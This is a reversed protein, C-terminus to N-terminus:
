PLLKECAFPYKEDCKTAKWRSNKDRQLVVCNKNHDNTPEGSEFYAYGTISKSTTNVFTLEQAIDDLGIWIKDESSEATVRFIFENEEINKPVALIAGADQCTQKADKFEQKASQFEYVKRFDPSRAVSDDWIVKFGTDDVMGLSSNLKKYTRCRNDSHFCVGGCNGLTLCMIACHKLSRATTTTLPDLVPCYDMSQRRFLMSIPSTERWFLIALLFFMRLNNKM